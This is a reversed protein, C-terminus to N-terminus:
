YFLTPKSIPNKYKTRKRKKRYEDIDKISERRKLYETKKVCFTDGSNGKKTNIEETFQEEVNIEKNDNNNETNYNINNNDGKINNEKEKINQSNQEINEEEM